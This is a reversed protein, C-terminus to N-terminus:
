ATEELAAVLDRVRKDYGHHARVHERVEDVVARYHDPRDLADAIKDAIQEPGGTLALERGTKGYVSEAHDEDILSLPITDACLIEFFKSTLLGLHRFLPRQTMLNIRAKSMTSMVDSFPVSPKVVVGARAFQAPDVQFAIEIETGVLSPPVADWWRGLFEAGRLKGHLRELAPLILTSVDRWRWWNHGVLMVDLEKDPAADRPVEMAEPHGYFALPRVTPRVPRQNPQFIRPALADMHAVWEAQEDVKWHTRDYDDVVIRDNYMGDADIIARQARPVRPMLRVLDIAPLWRLKSEYIFVVHNFQTPDQAWPIGVFSRDEKGWLEFDHGQAKGARVYAAIAQISGADVRADTAFLIRM